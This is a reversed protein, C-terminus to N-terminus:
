GEGDLEERTLRDIDAIWNRVIGAMYRFVQDSKIHTSTVAIDLARFIDQMRMGDDLWYNLGNRSRQFTHSLSALCRGAFQDSAVRANREDEAAM